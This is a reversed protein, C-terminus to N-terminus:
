APATLVVNPQSELNGGMDASLGDLGTNALIQSLKDYNIRPSKPVILYDEAANGLAIYEGAIYFLGVLASTIADVEDHTVKSTVFAGNIGARNLGWNLEELRAGKRPIGLLDQAAGNNNEIMNM